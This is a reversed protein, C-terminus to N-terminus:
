CLANTNMCNQVATILDRGNVVYKEGAVELEVNNKTLWHAHVRVPMKPPDSYDELQCSVKIM